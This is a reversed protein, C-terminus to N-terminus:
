QTVYNLLAKVVYVQHGLDETGSEDKVALFVREDRVALSLLQLCPATPLSKQNHWSLHRMVVEIEVLVQDLRHILEKRLYFHVRSRRAM